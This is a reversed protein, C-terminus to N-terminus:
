RYYFDDLQIYEEEIKQKKMEKDKLLLGRIAKIIWLNYGQKDLYELFENITKEENNM